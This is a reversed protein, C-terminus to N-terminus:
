RGGKLSLCFKITIEHFQFKLHTKPGAPFAPKKFSRGFITPFAARPLVQEVIDPLIQFIFFGIRILSYNPMDFM